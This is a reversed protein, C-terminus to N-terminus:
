ARHTGSHGVIEAYCAKVRRAVVSLDFTHAALQKARRGIAGLQVPDELLRALAEAVAGAELPVVQGARMQAIYRSIGLNESIVAPLGAAMAEAAAMGFSESESPMLFLDTDALAQRVQEPDLLGTFHVRDECRAQQARALLLPELGSEDPGVFVLHSNEFRDAIRAFAEVALDPRKIPHIRGLVLVVVAENPIGCGTRLAGRPPLNAFSRTNLGNPIVVTPNRFGLEKIAQQELEDSCILAAMREIHGQGPFRMYIRKKTKKQSLSWPMLEGRPSLVVPVGKSAAIRTAVLSPFNFTGNTHVIDFESMRELSRRALEPSWFFRARTLRPFYYVQVGDRSLARSVPLDLSAEGNANTTFVSVALGETVLARCLAPVSHAPGGYVFAPEYYPSVVLVRMQRSPVSAIRLRVSAGEDEPSLLLV